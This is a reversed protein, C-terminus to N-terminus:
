QYERFAETKNHLVAAQQTRYVTVWFSKSVYTKCTIHGFLPCDVQVQFAPGGITVWGTVSLDIALASAIALIFAVASLLNKKVFNM